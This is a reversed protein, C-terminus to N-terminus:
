DIKNRVGMWSEDLLVFTTVDSVENTVVAPLEVVVAPVTVRGTVVDVEVTTVTVLTKPQDVLMVVTCSETSLVDRVVTIQSHERDKLEIIFM